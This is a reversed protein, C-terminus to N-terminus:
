TCWFVWGPGAARGPRAWAAWAARAQRARGRVAAGQRARGRGVARGAAGQRESGAGRAGLALVDAQKGAQAHVGHARGRGDAYAWERGCVSACTRQAKHGRAWSGAAGAGVCAREGLARRGAWRGAGLGAGWRGAWRGRRHARHRAWGTPLLRDLNQM